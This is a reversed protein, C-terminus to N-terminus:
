RWLRCLKYLDEIYNDVAKDWEQSKNLCDVKVKKLYEEDYLSVNMM